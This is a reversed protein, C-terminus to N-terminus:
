GVQDGAMEDRSRKRGGAPGPASVQQERLPAWSGVELVVQRLLALKCDAILHAYMESWKKLGLTGLAAPWVTAAGEKHQGEAPVCQWDKIVLYRDLQETDPWPM